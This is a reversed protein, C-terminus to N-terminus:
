PPMQRGAYAGDDVEEDVFEPKIRHNRVIGADLDNRAPVSDYKPIAVAATDPTFLQPDAHTTMGRPDLSLFDAMFMSAKARAGNDTSIM